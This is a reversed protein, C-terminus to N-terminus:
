MQKFYFLPGVFSSKIIKYSKSISTNSKTQKECRLLCKTKLSSNYDHSKILSYTDNFAVYLECIRKLHFNCDKFERLVNRHNSSAFKRAQRCGEVDTIKHTNTDVNYPYSVYLKQSCRTVKNHILSPSPGAWSREGFCDM